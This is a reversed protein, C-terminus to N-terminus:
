LIDDVEWDGTYDLLSKKSPITQVEIYPIEWKDVKKVNLSHKNKEKQLKDIDKINLIFARQQTAFLVIILGYVFPIKSKALLGDYQFDSIRSFPFNDDYTAKSEIYYYNPSRFLTFDSINRIGYYGCTQDYIRDLCYGESPRDLWERIKAEAKKGLNDYIM